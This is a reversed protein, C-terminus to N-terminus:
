GAFEHVVSVDEEGGGRAHRIRPLVNSHERFRKACLHTGCCGAKALAHVNRDRLPSIGRPVRSSHPASVLHPSWPMEPIGCCAYPPFSIATIGSVSKAAQAYGWENQTTLQQFLDRMAHVIRDGKLDVPRPIPPFKRPAVTATSRLDASALAAAIAGAKLFSRRDVMRSQETSREGAPKSTM